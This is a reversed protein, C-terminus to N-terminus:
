AEKTWGGGGERGGWSPLYSLPCLMWLPQWRASTMTSDVTGSLLHKACWGRDWEAAMDGEQDESNDGSGSVWTQTEKVQTHQHLSETM